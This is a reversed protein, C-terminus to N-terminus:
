FCNKERSSPFFLIQDIAHENCFLSIMLVYTHIIRMYHFIIIEIKEM